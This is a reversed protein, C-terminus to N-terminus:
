ALRGNPSIRTAWRGRDGGQRRVRLYFGVNLDNQGSKSRPIFAVPAMVVAM